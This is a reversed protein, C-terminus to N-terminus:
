AEDKGGCEILKRRIDFLSSYTSIVYGGTKTFREVALDLDPEVEPDELLGGYKVRIGLDYGRTGSCIYHNINTSNLLEFDADWIWSVDRGDSAADNLVFLLSSGHEASTRKIYKLIENCGTPNKVLNLLVSKGCVEIEEMRGIGLRFTSLVKETVVECLGHTLAVSIAALQNYIYYTGVGPTSFKSELGGPSRLVTFSLGDSELYGEFNPTQRAFGCERCKFSGIHSYQYYEYELRSSCHPCFKGESSETYGEPDYSYESKKLGFTIINPYEFDAQNPDDACLFLRGSFNDFVEKIKGILTAMEGARDLQDRFFNTIVIDTAAISGLHKSLTIEDVELVAIDAAIKLGLSSHSLLATAVGSILNDGMANSVVTKGSGEFIKSIMNMTSTKGNTGTVLIVTEPYRLRKLIGPSIKLAMEGPLSRNEGGILRSTFGAIRCVLLACFDLFKNM